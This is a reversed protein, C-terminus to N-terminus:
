SRAKSGSCLLPHTELFQYAYTMTEAVIENILTGAFFLFCITLLEITSLPYQRSEKRWTVSFQSGKACFVKELWIGKIVKM